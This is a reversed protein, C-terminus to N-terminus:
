RGNLFINLLPREEPLKWAKLPTVLSSGPLGAWRRQQRNEYSLSDHLGFPGRWSVRYALSGQFEIDELGLKGLASTLVASGLVLM